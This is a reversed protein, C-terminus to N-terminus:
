ILKEWFEDDIPFINRLNYLFSIDKSFMKVVQVSSIEFESQMYSKFFEKIISEIISANQSTDLVFLPLIYTPLTNEIMKCYFFNEEPEISMSDLM